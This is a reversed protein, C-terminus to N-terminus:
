IVIYWGSVTFGVGLIVSAAIYFVTKIIRHEEMMLMWQLSFTSFTTFAGLFGFSIIELGYAIGPYNQQLGFLVGIGLCGLSNIILTSWPFYTGLGAILKIDLLYRLVAGPIGAAITALIIM